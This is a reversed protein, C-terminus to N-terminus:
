MHLAKLAMIQEPTVKSDKGLAARDKEFKAIVQAIMKAPDEIAKYEPEASFEWWRNNRINNLDLDKAKLKGSVFEKTLDNILFGYHCEVWLKIANHRMGKGLKLMLYNVGVVVPRVDGSKIWDEAMTNLLKHIRLQLTESQKAILDIEKTYTDM